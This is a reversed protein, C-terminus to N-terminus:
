SQPRIHEPRIYIYLSCSDMWRSPDEEEVRFEPEEEEEESCEELEDEDSKGASDWRQRTSDQVEDAAGLSLYCTRCVRLQKASDIHTILARKRSCPGCVLFGCKRCHHRRHTKTFKSACRMCIASAQDPIWTSAFDLTSRRGGSQLVRDKCEEIHEIWARKEEYSAASVYFSKRPTRILWQNKMRVGDELDELLVDELPIIQLKKHWRGNLVVGGYALVDNFLFFAKPQQKKRGQKVLTGEGVLVRDSQLLLKGSRGFTNAVAQVREWNEQAFMLQDM